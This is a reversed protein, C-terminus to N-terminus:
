DTQDHVDLMSVRPHAIVADGHLNKLGKTNLDVLMDYSADQGPM